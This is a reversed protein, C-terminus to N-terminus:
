FEDNNKFIERRERVKEKCSKGRKLMRSRHGKVRPDFTLHGGHVAYSCIYM